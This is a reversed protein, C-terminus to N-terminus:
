VTKSLGEEVARKVDSSKLIASIVAAGDAGADFCEKINKVNIGGIAVIPISSRERALEIEETGLVKGIKKTQTPFIPGLGAYDAGIKEARLVDDASRCTIGIIKHPLLRKVVDFPLDNKGIHIGDADLALAIDVRDNVIFLVDKKECLKKLNLGTRFMARLDLEKERYQLTTIGADIAESAIELERNKMLIRDTILYLKLSEKLKLNEKM